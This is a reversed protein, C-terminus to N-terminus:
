EGGVIQTSADSNLAARITLLLEGMEPNAACYDMMPEDGAMDCIVRGGRGVVGLGVVSSYPSAMWPGPTAKLESM